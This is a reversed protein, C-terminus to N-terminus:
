KLKVDLGLEEIKALIDDRFYPKNIYGDAMEKFSAIMNEPSPYGTIMIIKAGEEISIGKKEEYKRIEKLASIGDLGPMRIDLIILDYRKVESSNIVADVAEKGNNAIIRIIRKMVKRKITSPM